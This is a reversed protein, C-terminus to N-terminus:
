TPLYLWKNHSECTHVTYWGMFVTM